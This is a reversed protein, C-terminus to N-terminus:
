KYACLVNKDTSVSRLRNIEDQYKRLQERLRRNEDELSEVRGRLTVLEGELEGIHDSLRDAKAQM